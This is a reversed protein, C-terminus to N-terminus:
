NQMQDSNVYSYPDVILTNNFITKRQRQKIKLLAADLQSAYEDADKKGYYKKANTLAHLFVLESPISVRDSNQVLPTLEKIYEFRLTYANTNPVPYIEIQDRREYHTPIGSLAINRQELKIGETLQIYRGSWLVSLENLREVNCNPPYDYFSQNSGTAVEYTKKLEVFDYQLYLQEQGNRIMSDILPSNVIGAQGSMGFGLQIQIDSRLDGLTRKLQPM